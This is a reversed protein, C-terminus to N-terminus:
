SRLYIEHVEVKHHGHLDPSKEIEEIETIIDQCLNLFHGGDKTNKNGSSLDKLGMALRRVRSIRPWETMGYQRQRKASSQIGEDTALAPRRRQFQVPELGGLIAKKGASSPPAAQKIKKGHRHGVLPIKPGPLKGAREHRPRSLRDRDVVPLTVKKPWSGSKDYSSPLSLTRDNSPQLAGGKIRM